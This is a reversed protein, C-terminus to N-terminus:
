RYAITPNDILGNGVGCDEQQQDTGVTVNTLIKLVIEKMM